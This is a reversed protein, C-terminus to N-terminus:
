LLMICQIDDIILSVSDPIYITQYFTVLSRLNKPHSWLFAPGKDCTHCSLLWVRTLPWLHQVYVSITYGKWPMITLDGSSRFIRSCTCLYFDFVGNWVQNWVMSLTTNTPWCHLKFVKGQAQLDWCFLGQPIPPMPALSVVFSPICQPFLYVNRLRNCNSVFNIFQVKISFLNASHYWSMLFDTWFKTLFKLFWFQLSNKKKKLMIHLLKIIKFLYM